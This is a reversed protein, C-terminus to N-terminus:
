LRGSEGTGLIPASVGRLRVVRGEVDLDPIAVVECPVLSGDRHFYDLRGSFASPVKGELIERSFQEFYMLSRTLSEPPHIEDARQRLAEEVTIGRLSQVSASIDEIEGTAAMTWLVADPRSALERFAEDPNAM